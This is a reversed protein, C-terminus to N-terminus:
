LFNLFKEILSCAGDQTEQITNSYWNETKKSHIHFNKKTSTIILRTQVYPHSHYKKFKSQKKYKLELINSYMVEIVINLM